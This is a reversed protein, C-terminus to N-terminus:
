AFNNIWNGFLVFEANQGLLNELERKIAINPRNGLDRLADVAHRLLLQIHVWAIVEAKLFSAYESSKECSENGAASSIKAFRSRLM